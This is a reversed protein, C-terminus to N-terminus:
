LANRARTFARRAAGETTGLHQAIEAWPKGQARLELIELGRARARALYDARPEGTDRQVTRISVGQIEAIKRASAQRRTPILATM